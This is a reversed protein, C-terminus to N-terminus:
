PNKNILEWKYLSGDNEDKVEDVFRFGCKKLVKTSANEKAITHAIIKKIQNNQFGIDSLLKVMETAFGKNRYKSAVEYGIEACENKPPGKFGCNGVLINTKSDIALYCGWKHSKPDKNIIELMSKFFDTELETWNEPVVIKLNEALIDDGKLIWSIIEPKCNILYIRGSEM